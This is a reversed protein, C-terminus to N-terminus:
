VQVGLRRKKFPRSASVPRTAKEWGMVLTRFSDAGHSAWDHVPKGVISRKLADYESRYSRLANLGEATKEKDFVCMPLFRRVANIEMQKALDDKPAQIAIADLGNDLFFSVASRGAVVQMNAGDHPLILQGLQHRKFRNLIQELYHELGVGFSAYYDLVRVEMGVRQVFWLATQDFTGLDFSVTVPGGSPDYPVPCIAGRGELEGIERAYYAGLVPAEFSCEYEQRFLAQGAELGYDTVFEEREKDIDNPGFVGTDRWTLREVFWDDDGQYDLYMRHAHNQGRPTGNFIAWGGNEKLIPRIFAWAQPDSLPWESFVVGIPNSGVLNDYNDSGVVQWTADNAFRLRMLDDRTHGRGPHRLDKPFAWDIRRIAGLGDPHRVTADWIAKRAQEMKPLMYWYTGPREFISRATWHLSVDDKGSRRHWIALARKKGGALARWLPLQYDRPQWRSPIKIRTESM